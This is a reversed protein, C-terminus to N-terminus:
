ASDIIRRTTTASTQGDAGYLDQRNAALLIELMQANHSMRLRILDGNLRNLERAEAALEQLRHWAAVAARDGANAKLWTEVGAKDIAHGQRSLEANRAASISALTASAAAKRGVIGPLADANGATLAEQEERLLFVFASVADAESELMRGLSSM